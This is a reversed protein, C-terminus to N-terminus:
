EKTDVAYEEYLESEIEKVMSQHSPSIVQDVKRKAFISKKSSSKPRGFVTTNSLGDMNQLVRFLVMLIAIGVFMTIIEIINEM